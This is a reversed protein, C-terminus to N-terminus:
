SRKTEWYGALGRTDLLFLIKLRWSLINGDPLFIMGGLM